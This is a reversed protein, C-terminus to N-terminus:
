ASAFHLLFCDTDKHKELSKHANLFSFCKLKCKQLILSVEKLPM